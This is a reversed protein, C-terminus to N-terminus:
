HLSFLIEVQYNSQFQFQISNAGYDVCLAKDSVSRAEEYEGM